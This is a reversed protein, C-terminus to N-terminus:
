FFANQMENIHEKAEAFSKPTCLPCIEGLGVLIGDSSSLSNVLGRRTNATNQIQGLEGWRIGNAGKGISSDVLEIYFEEIDILSPM